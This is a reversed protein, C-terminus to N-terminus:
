FHTAIFVLMFIQNPEVGLQKLEIAQKLLSIKDLFAVIYIRERNQPIGFQKANLLTAYVQYGLAELSHKVTSFTNGRNHNKFGKVNELFLVKPRHYAAIESINFFLTGRIDSFGKKHGAQSFPQCPFGTLLIDFAPINQPHIQTIDGAPCDGFNAQYTQQCFKDWESSFVCADFFPAFGQRIGGLGAFLDIIKHPIKNM